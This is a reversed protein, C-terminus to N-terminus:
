VAWDQSNKGDVEKTLDFSDKENKTIRITANQYERADLNSLDIFGDVSTITVANDVVQVRSSATNGAYVKEENQSEEDSSEQESEGSEQLKGPQEDASSETDKAANETSEGNTTESSTNESNTQEPQTGGTSESNTQQAQQTSGAPATGPEASGTVQETQSVGTDAPLVETLVPAPLTQLLLAAALVGALTNKLKWKLM